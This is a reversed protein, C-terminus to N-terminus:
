WINREYVSNLFAISDFAEPEYQGRNEKLINGAVALIRESATSSAPIALIKTALKTLKPYKNSNNKWWLMVDFDETLRVNENAYSEVEDRVNEPISDSAKKVLNPFFFTIDSISSQQATSTTSFVSTNPLSVLFDKVDPPDTEPEAPSNTSFDSQYTPSQPLIFDKIDLPTVPRQENNSTPAANPNEAIMRDMCFEKIDNIDNPQLSIAPPYLFVAAKHWISLNSRWKELQMLINRKLAVICDDEMFKSYCISQIRNISPIVYCLTPSTCVQFKNYIIDFDNNIEVLAQLLAVNFNLMNMTKVDNELTNKITSYNELVTKFMAFHTNWKTACNNKNNPKLLHQMNHRKFYNLILKCSEIIGKLETTLEFAEDLISTFLDSSCNIRTLDKLASTINIRRDTVFVTNSLNSIGYEGFLLNLKERVNNASDAMFDMPKIGLTIDALEFNSQFHLTACLFNTKIIYDSWLDLTVAAEGSEVLEQINAKMEVKKDEAMIKAEQWLAQGTPILEELDVNEGYKAGIKICRDIMKRFGMGEVISFPQCDEIIFNLFDKFCAENDAASAVVPAADHPRSHVCKHKILNSTQKKTYRFVRHCGQCHVQEDLVTGDDKVIESFINWIISKKNQKKRLKYVGNNIKKIIDETDEM